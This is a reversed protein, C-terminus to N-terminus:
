GELSHLCMKWFTTRASMKPFNSENAEVIELANSYAGAEYFRMLEDRLQDFSNVKRM